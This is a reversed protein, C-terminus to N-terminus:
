AQLMEALQKFKMISYNAFDLLFLIIKISGGFLMKRDNLSYTVTAFSYMSLYSPGYEYM